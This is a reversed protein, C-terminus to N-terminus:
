SPRVRPRQIVPRPRQRSSPRRKTRPNRWTWLLKRAISWFWIRWIRTPAQRWRIAIKPRSTCRRWRQQPRHRSQWIRHLRSFYTQRHLPTTLTIQRTGSPLGISCLAVNVTAILLPDDYGHTDRILHPQLALRWWLFSGLGQYLGPRTHPSRHFALRTSFHLQLHARLCTIDRRCRCLSTQTTTNRKTHQV